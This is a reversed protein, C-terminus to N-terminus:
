RSNKILIELDENEISPPFRYSYDEFKLTLNPNYYPDRKLLTNWKEKFYNSEKVFIEKQPESGRTASEHHYLIARAAMLNSLGRQICKLCLDVDNFNIKLNEQDFMGVEMFKSRQIALCAGTVASVRHTQNIRNRQGAAGMPYYRFAHGAVGGIGCVIGAHQICGEPYYLLAGVAGVKKDVAYVALDHLWHPSQIAVDNNLFVLVEGSAKKAAFNNMASYNFPKNYNLVRFNKGSQDHLFQLTKPDDSQNDVILIEFNRYHTFQRISQICAALLDVGNRTPIIISLKVEQGSFGRLINYHYYPSSVVEGNLHTRNIHDKLVKESAENIYDKQDVSLATSGEIERWHYLVYPLHCIQSDELLETARFALDWDQSGEYGKRIGGVKRCLSRTLAMIHCVYNQGELLFPDWDTKFFPDEYSGNPKIKDEDSYIFQIESDRNIAIVIRLLADAHIEDDHDLFTIWSGEATDFATQTALSIHGNETRYTIRIRSDKKSLERLYALTAPDTSADDAICLEWNEYKQNLVSDVAKKLYRVNSNFTPMLISILPKEHFHRNMRNVIKLPLSIMKEYRRMWMSYDHWQYKYPLYRTFPVTEMSEEAFLTWDGGHLQYEFVLSENPSLETTPVEFGARKATLYKDGHEKDVDPRKKNIVADYTGGPTTLRIAAIPKDDLRFCWGLIMYEYGYSRGIQARDIRYKVGSFKHSVKQELYHYKKFKSLFGFGFELWKGDSSKYDFAIYPDGALRKIEIEFGSNKSHAVDPHQRAVNKRPLHCKGEIIQDRFRVRVGNVKNPDDLDLIWGFVKKKYPSALDHMCGEFVRRIHYHKADALNHIGIPHEYYKKPLDILRGEWCLFLFEDDIECYIRLYDDSSKGPLELSFGSYRAAQSEQLEEAVDPREIGTIIELDEFDFLAKLKTIRFDNRPVIWGKLIRTTSHKHLLIEELSIHCPDLYKADLKGANLETLYLWKNTGPCQVEFQLLVDPNKQHFQLEFSYAYEFDLKASDDTPADVANLEM